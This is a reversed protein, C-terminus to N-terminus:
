IFRESHMHAQSLTNNIRAILEDPNFPKVMFDNAGAKLMDVRTSSKDISSLMIFPISRFAGSKKVQKLFHQGDLEPMSIDCLILDPIHGNQLLSLAQLGNEATEVSYNKNLIIKVLRRFEHKDDIFLIRKKM